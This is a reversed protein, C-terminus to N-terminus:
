NAVTFPVRGLKHIPAINFSIDLLEDRTTFHVPVVFEIMAMLPRPPCRSIRHNYNHDHRTAGARFRIIVYPTQSINHLCIANFHAAFEALIAILPQFPNVIVINHQQRAQYQGFVHLGDELSFFMRPASNSRPHINM